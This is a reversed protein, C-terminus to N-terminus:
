LTNYLEEDINTDRDCEEHNEYFNKTEVIAEDYSLGKESIFFLVIPVFYDTCSQGGFATGNIFIGDNSIVREYENFNPDQCILASPCVTRENCYFHRYGIVSTRMIPNFAKYYLYLDTGISGIGMSPLNMEKLANEPITKQVKIYVKNLKEKLGPYTPNKQKNVTERIFKEELDNIKNSLKAIEAKKKEKLKSLAVMKETLIEKEKEITAKSEEIQEEQKRIEENYSVISGNNQEKQNEIEEDNSIVDTDSM